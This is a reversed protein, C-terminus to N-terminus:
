ASKTRLKVAQAEPKNNTSRATQAPMTRPKPESPAAMTRAPEETDGMDLTEPMEEEDPFITGIESVGLEDGAREMFRLFGEYAGMQKFLPAQPAMVTLLETAQSFNARSQQDTKVREITVDLDDWNLAEGPEEDGSVLEAYENEDIMKANKARRAATEIDDKTRGGLLVAGDYQSVTRNDNEAFWCATKLVSAILRKGRADLHNTVTELHADAIQNEGLTAAGTAEGAAFDPMGLNRRVRARLEMGRAILEPPPGGIQVTLAKSPDFGPILVVEGHKFDEITNAGEATVGDLIVGTKANNALLDISRETANLMEILAGNAILPSSKRVENMVDVFGEYVYPGTRPGYYPVPPAIMEPSHMGVYGGIHPSRCLAFKFVTGHCKSRDLDKWAPDGEPLEYNRVWMCVYSVEKRDVDAAILNLGRAAAIPEPKMRKVADLDWEDPKAEAIQILEDHTNVAVHWAYRAKEYTGGVFDCGWMRMDLRQATPTYPPDDCQECGKRVGQTVLAVAGGFSMDDVIREYETAFGTDREWQRAFDELHEVRESVERRKTTFRPNLAGSTMRAKTFLSYTYYYNEPESLAPRGAYLDGAAKKACEAQLRWAAKWYEASAKQEAYLSKPQVHFPLDPYKM